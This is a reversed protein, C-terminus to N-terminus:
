ECDGYWLHERDEFGKGANLQGEAILHPVVARLRTVGRSTFYNHTFDLRTLNRVDPCDALVHATADTFNGGFFDLSRLQKLLGSDVFTQMAEDGIEHLRLTLHTLSPLHPSRVLALFGETRIYAEDDGPELGHPFCDLTVLNKMSPNAALRELPYDHDHHAVLKRLRPLPLTFVEAMWRGSAYLRLEELRPMHALVSPFTQTHVRCQDDEYGLRFTRLTELFPLEPLIELCPSEYDEHNIGLDRLCGATPCVKVAEVLSPSICDLHLTHLWGRVFTFRNYREAFYGMGIPETGAFLGAMPGLWEAKHRELLETEREQLEQRQAPSRSPDELAIQVQAFEGRPDGHEAAHDAWAMAAALDDPNERLAAELAERIKKM